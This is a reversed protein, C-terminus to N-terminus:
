QPADAPASDARFASNWADLGGHLPKAHKYGYAHM